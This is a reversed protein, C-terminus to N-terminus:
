GLGYFGLVGVFGTGANGAASEDLLKTLSGIVIPAMPKLQEESAQM